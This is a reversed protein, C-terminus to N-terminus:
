PHPFGSSMRHLVPLLFAIALIKMVIGAILCFGWVGVSWYLWLKASEADAMAGGYDGIVKKNNASSSKVIGVIGFATSVLSACCFVALLASVVTMVISWVLYDPVAPMPGPRYPQQGYPQQPYGQQTPQTPPMAQTPQPPAQRLEAGCNACKQANDSNNWACRPCQM